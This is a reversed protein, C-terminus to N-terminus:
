KAWIAALQQTHYAICTGSYGRCAYKIVNQYAKNIRPANQKAMQRTNIAVIADVLMKDSQWVTEFRGFIEVTVRKDQKLEVRITDAGMPIIITTPQANATAVLLLIFFISKM